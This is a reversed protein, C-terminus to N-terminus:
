EIGVYYHYLPQGGDHVEVEVAPYETQLWSLIEKTNKSTVSVGVVLTVLEHNSELLSQLLETVASVLDSAVVKIQGGSLGLYDGESIDGIDSSSNRVAATVEASIVTGAAEVMSEQNNAASAEPDYAFLSAFGEIVNGTRVVRVTKAIQADLQEAVAVINSNNPLIVIEDASISQLVSLFEATSPNASQGGSMVKSVGFSEFIKKVGDGNAVAVVACNVTRDSDQVDSLQDRVWAQEAIEESLDTVRIDTPKGVEIGTEIVAGIDNTHIHCNWINDGGVVVISDGLGAWAERFGDIKEDSAHLFYMVEYRTKFPEHSDHIDLFDNTGLEPVPPPIPLPRGDVATLFADLLLLFGYGGADVVNAKKLVPLLEPTQELSSGGAERAIEVIQLLDETTGTERIAAESVERVVTLITGEVPTGVAKYAADSAAALGDALVRGTIPEEHELIVDIFGRLIQSLIVGSNGRAGMLSGHSIAGGVSLLDSKDELDELENVVSQLTALMNSGTDGDPVPYVNLSNIVKSHASLADRFDSM